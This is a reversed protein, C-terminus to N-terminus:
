GAQLAKPTVAKLEDPTAAAEIAPDKTADRLAQKRAAIAAMAGTDGKESARMFEIDLAALLPARQARIQDRKIDRAKNMNVVIAGTDAWANRFTRDRPIDAADVIKFSVGAPVDKAAIEEITLGCEPAPIIIGIGGDETQYIIRKELM